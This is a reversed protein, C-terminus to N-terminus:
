PLDNRAPCDAPCPETLDMVTNPLTICNERLRQGEPDSYFQSAMWVLKNTTTKGPISDLGIYVQLGDANPYADFLNEIICKDLYWGKLVDGNENHLQNRNSPDMYSGVIKQAQSWSIVHANQQPCPAPVSFNMPTSTESSKNETSGTSGAFYWIASAVAAGAIGAIVSNQSSM